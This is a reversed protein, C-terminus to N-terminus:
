RGSTPYNFHLHLLNEVLREELGEGCSLPTHGSILVAHVPASTHLLDREVPSPNLSLNIASPLSLLFRLHRLLM